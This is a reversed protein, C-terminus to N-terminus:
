GEDTQELAKWFVDLGPREANCEPCGVHPDEIARNHRSCAAKVELRRGLGLLVPKVTLELELNPSANANLIDPVSCRACLFPRWPLSEPNQNILRCEQLERGRHFDEYYYRCEKGAPTRM